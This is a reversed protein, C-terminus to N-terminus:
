SWGMPSSCWSPGRRRWHAATCSYYLVEGARSTGVVGPTDFRACTTATTYRQKNEGSTRAYNTQLYATTRESINFEFNGFLTKRESSPRMATGSTVLPGDGNM